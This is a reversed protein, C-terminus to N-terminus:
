LRNMGEELTKPWEATRCGVRLSLGGVPHEALEELLLAVVNAMLLRCEDLGDLFVHLRHNGSKWAAFEEGGFLKRVLREESGYAGLNMWITEDGGAEAKEWEARLATTKGIGPEGLLALCPLGSTKEFPRLDSSLYRAYPGEPDALYGRDILDLTGNWPCWFRKWDYRRRPPASPISV